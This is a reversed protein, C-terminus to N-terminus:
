EVRLLLFIDDTSRIERPAFSFFFIELPFDFGDSRFCRVSWVFFLWISFFFFLWFIQYTKIKEKNLDWTKEKENSLSRRSFFLLVFFFKNQMRVLIKWWFLLFFVFKRFKNIDWACDIYSQISSLLLQKSSYYFFFVFLISIDTLWCMVRPSFLEDNHLIFIPFNPLSLNACSNFVTCSTM